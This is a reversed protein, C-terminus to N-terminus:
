FVWCHGCSQFPWNENWDWLCAIGFFRWVVTCNYENWMSALNISLIRWTLSWCHTFQSSGSACVPNWLILSILSWIVLMWQIMFFALSNWFVDIETESVVNFVKVIHILVFQPFNKFLHSCWLVKHTEQPIQIHTWFCCNSSSMCCCVPFLFVDLSYITM